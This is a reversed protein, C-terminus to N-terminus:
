EISIDLTVPERQGHLAADYRGIDALVPETIDVFGPEFTADRDDRLPVSKRAHRLAFFYEIRRIQWHLIIPHYFLAPEFEECGKQIM